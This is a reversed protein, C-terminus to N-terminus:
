TESGQYLSVNWLLFFIEHDLFMQSLFFQQLWFMLQYRSFIPNHCKHSKIWLLRCCINFVWKDTSKQQSLRWLACLHTKGTEIGTSKNSHFYYIWRFPFQCFARRHLATTPPKNNTCVQTLVTRLLSVPRYCFLSLYSAGEDVNHLHECVVYCFPQNVGFHSFPFFIMNWLRHM